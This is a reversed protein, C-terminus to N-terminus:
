AYLESLAVVYRWAEVFVADDCFRLGSARVGEGDEVFREVGEFDCVGFGLAAFTRGQLVM